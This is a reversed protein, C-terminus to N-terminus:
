INERLPSSKIQLTSNYAKKYKKKWNQVETSAMPTRTSVVYSRKFGGKSDNSLAEITASVQALAHKVDQGKLEIFFETRGQLSDDLVAMWDCKLVSNSTIQCGDVRIRQIQKRDKNILSLKSRKESFVIEKGDVIEKCDPDFEM